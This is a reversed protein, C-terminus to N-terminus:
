FFLFTQDAGVTVAATMVACNLCVVELCRDSWIGHVKSSCFIKNIDVSMKGLSNICLQTKQVNM